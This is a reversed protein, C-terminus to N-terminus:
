VPRIGTEWDDTGCCATVRGDDSDVLIPDTLPLDTEDVPVRGTNGCANCTAVLEHDSTYDATLVDTTTRHITIDAPGLRKIAAGDATHYISNEIWYDASPDRRHSVDAIKDNDRAIGDYLTDLRFYETRPGLSSDDTEVIAAFTDGEDLGYLFAPVDTTYTPTAM